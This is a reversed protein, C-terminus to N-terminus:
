TVLTARHHRAVGAEDAGTSLNNEIAPFTKLGSLHLIKSARNLSSINM